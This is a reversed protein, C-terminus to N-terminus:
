RSLCANSFKTKLSFVRLIYGLTFCNAFKCLNCDIFFSCVKFFTFYRNAKALYLSIAAPIHLLCRYCLCSTEYGFNSFKTWIIAEQHNFYSFPMFEVTRYRGKCPRPSPTCPGIKGMPGPDLRGWLQLNKFNRSCKRFYMKLWELLRLSLFTKSVENASSWVECNQGQTRLVERHGQDGPSICSVKGTQFPVTGHIDICCYQCTYWEIISLSLYDELHM